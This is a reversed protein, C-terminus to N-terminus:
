VPTIRLSMLFMDGGGSGGGSYGATDLFIRLDSISAGTTFQTSFDVLTTYNDAADVTAGTIEITALTAGGVEVVHVYFGTFNVSATDGEIAFQGTLDYLTSLSASRSLDFQGKPHGATKAVKMAGYNIGELDGGLSEAPEHTVTANTGSFTNLESEYDISFAGRFDTDVLTGAPPSQISPCQIVNTYASASGQTTTCTVNCRLYQDANEAKRTFDQSTADQSYGNTITIDTWGTSGDASEQWQFTFDAPWAPAPYGSWGGVGASLFVDDADIPNAAAGWDEAAWGPYNQKVVSPATTNAPAANSATGTTTIVNRDGNAFAGGPDAVPYNPSYPGKGSANELAIQVYYIGGNPLGTISGTTGHGNSEIWGRQDLSYRAWRDTITQNGSMDWASIDWSFGGSAATVFNQQSTDLVDLMDPLGTWSWDPINSRWASFFDEANFTATDVANSFSRDLTQFTKIRDYMALAAANSNTTNNLGDLFAGEGSVSGPGNQLLFVPFAEVPGRVQAVTVYEATPQAGRYKDSWWPKGVDETKYTTRYRYHAGAGGPFAMGAGVDGSGIWLPSGRMNSLVAQARALMASDGLLFAAFFHFNHYGHHQGAGTSGIDGRQYMGDVCLGHWIVRKALSQKDAVSADSHLLYMLISRVHVNDASYGSNSGGTVNEQVQYRRGIEGDWGPFFPMGIVDVNLANTVTPSGSPLTLSQLVNLDIDDSTYGHDIGTMEPAFANQGPLTEVFAFPVFEDMTADISDGNNTRRIAKVLVTVGSSPVVYNSGTYGPDVNLAGDWTVTASSGSGRSTSISEDWGQTLPSFGAAYPNVMAGDVWVTQPSSNNDVGSKQQSAPTVSTVELGANKLIVPLGNVDYGVEAVQNFNATVVTGNKTTYTAYAQPQTDLTSGGVAVNVQASSSFAM